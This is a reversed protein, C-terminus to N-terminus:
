LGAKAELSRLPADEGKAILALIGGEGDNDARMIFVVFEISVILTISWFVLSIVGFVDGETPKVAQHDAPFVTQLAYLPSPGIDGFVIGLAGLALTAMGLQRRSPRSAPPSSPAAPAM